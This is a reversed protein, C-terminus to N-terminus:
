SGPRTAPRTAEIEDIWGAVLRAVLRAGAESFHMDDYFYDARRPVALALDRCLVDPGGCVERLVDNFAQMGEALARPSYYRQHECWTKIPGLGGALLRAREAPAMDAAWLTPQTLFLMPAGYTRSREVLAHLNRRYAALAPGLDPLGDVLGAAPATQRCQRLRAYGEATRTQVFGLRRQRWTQWVLRAARVTALEQRADGAPPRLAFAWGLNREPTPADLYSSKLALQLDNVGVLNVLLDARPLEPLLREVHLLNHVSALSPRALNGIWTRPRGPRRNLTEQVLHVWTEEQDLYLDIATSGGLVYVVRGAQVPPEDARLGLSNTWFRGRGTVGPTAAETPAFDLRLNPPWVYHRAPAPYATRLILEAAGLALAGLLVLYAIRRRWSRM